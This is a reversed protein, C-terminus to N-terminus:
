GIQRVPAVGDPVLKMLDFTDMQALIAFHEKAKVRKINEVRRLPSSAGSIALAPFFGYCEDGALPGHMAMCRDFMPEGSFDVFDASEKDPVIGAAMHEATVRPAWGEMTLAISYVSSEPLDIHFKWLKDSWVMLDGFATYGVIHCERHHFEKDAKFVLASISRMEDPNCLRFLGDHFSCFGEAEIFDVLTSPLIARMRDIEAEDARRITQVPGYHDLAYQFSDHINTM